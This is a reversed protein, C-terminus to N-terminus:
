RTKKWRRQRLRRQVVGLAKRAQAEDAALVDPGDTNHRL